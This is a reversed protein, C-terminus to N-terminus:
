KSIVALKSGTVVEQKQKYANSSTFSYQPNYLVRSGTFSPDHYLILTSDNFKIPTHDAGTIQNNGNVYYTKTDNKDANKFKLGPRLGGPLGLEGDQNLDICDLEVEGPTYYKDYTHNIGKTNFLSITMKGDPSQRLLASLSTDKAHQQKLIFPTGDNLPQLEKRTRLSYQYDMDDKFRKVFKKFNVNNPDAWEEHIINRNQLYINKSTTEFGTSAYEDGGYLTPNGLLAVLFKTQGLLRSMAPDVINEFTKDKLKKKEEKTLRKSKDNNEVYDMESLVLDLAANYDKTGFGDAEFVKGRFKGKALNSLAKLMVGYIYKSRNEDVGIQTSAKGMGSAISECKAVALNSVRNFDYNNIEEPKVTYDFAKAELIKYARERYPDAKHVSKDALDAFVMDMDMAFGDLSRPKDHNGAFTYSYILSELSGSKVFEKLQNLVTENQDTGKDVSYGDYEFLKGFIKAIDSAFYRYNALTTFGGENILKKVAEQENAFRSGSKSGYGMKYIEGEDTVEAAIYADPHYEKVADTFKSWFKIVDNWTKEFENKQNRLSTMDGIDKTADIRWDLGAGTRDVIMEALKFSTADIGNISTWLINSFERKDTEDIKKIRHRLKNALSVAEDEPSVATIGMSLLSTNKLKKYDYIIGGSKKDYGFQADPMVSKIIAFKAIEATLLPIVYKAYDTSHGDKDRLKNGDEEEMRKELKKLIEDAFAKMEKTYMKDTLDYAYKFEPLVHKNGNKYMDFRSVGIQEEKIARKTMYPSALAAAIDDGVEISDLPVDMLGRIVLDDYSDTSQTGHLFYNGNIVSAVIDNDIDTDKPFVKGNSLAKIKATIEDTTKNKIDRLNQAVYINLIDNTKKTWFKASSIAYDQVQMNNQLLTNEAEAREKPDLINKLKQTDSNSYVYNLKAIDPNADWTEFGSEHKGDPGFYKFHAAIRTGQESYLKIRDESIRFQKNYENLGEVNKKYIEPDIRFSYPIVVDNHTNLEIHNRNLKNYAQILQESSLKEANPIRKDYIQIYTPSKKDYLRNRYIKVMGDPQQEFKYKPNILRHTTYKSNKSFVGLSLPVSQLDSIKFWNMYPSQTGWNLIHQFHIGELGENVYAGDSVLNIGKAFFKRQLSAYNNVNGLDQVMQMCNKNWYAHATLNDDTFMPLTIIRTYNDLKGEDIDKELGAISGGIKNAFNKSVNRLRDINPNKVINNKDDYIWMVNNIDLDILKMAGGKSVTSARDTVINYKEWAGNSTNDILNGADTEWKADAHTGKPYLKYHYAFAENPDIGFEGKLDIKTAQGNKLKIGPENPDADDPNVPDWKCPKTIFYNGNNDTGVHFIELYCDYKTDDFPYNFEYERDGFESKVPKYGEFSARNNIKPQNSLNLNVKVIFM